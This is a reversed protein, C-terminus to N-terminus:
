NLLGELFRLRRLGYWSFSEGDVIAAPQGLELLGEQKKEFPYPESSFLLLTEEELNELDVKPYKGDIDLWYSNLGILEFVSHIFTNDGVCMWPDKWIVYAVKKCESSPKKLWKLVGPTKDLAEVRQGKVQSWRDAIEKIKKNQLVESIKKMEAGVDKVSTVHTVLLHWHGEVAMNKTNEEKDLLIVDPKLAEIKEWDVKKTGGVIAIDKVKEKPHICYRTRGVVDAGAKILTETWSPVLSVVRM